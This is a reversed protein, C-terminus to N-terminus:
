KNPKRMPIDIDYLEKARIHDVWVNITSAPTSNVVTIETKVEHDILDIFASCMAGFFATEEPRLEHYKKSVQDIASILKEWDSDTMDTVSKNSFDNNAIKWIDQMANYILKRREM